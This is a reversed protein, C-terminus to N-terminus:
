FDAHSQSCSGPHSRSDANPQSRTLHAAAGEDKSPRACRRRDLRCQLRRDGGLRVQPCCRRGAGDPATFVPSATDAGSLAVSPGSTQAWAYALPLGEPDFSGSGDLSVTAGESVTQDPGANATPLDNVEVVTLTFAAAATETGDTATVLITLTDPTDAERPTGSFILASADTTFNLWAPLPSGDSLTAIYTLTNGDPDDFALPRIFSSATRPPRRLGSPPRRPHVTRRYSSLCSSPRMELTCITPYPSWSRM